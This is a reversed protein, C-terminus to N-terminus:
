EELDRELRKIAEELDDAALDAAKHMKLHADRERILVMHHLRMRKLTKRPDETSVTSSGATGAQDACASTPYISRANM